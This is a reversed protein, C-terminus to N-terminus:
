VENGRARPNEAPGKLSSKGLVIDVEKGEFPCEIHISDMGVNEHAVLYHYLYCTIDNESVPFFEGRAFDECLRKWSRELKRFWDQEVM